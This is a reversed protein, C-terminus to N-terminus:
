ESLGVAELAQEPNAYIVWRVIRGARLEFLHGVRIEAPVGSAWGIASIRVKFAVRDASAAHELLEWRNDKLAEHVERLAQRLGEYGRFTGATGALDALQQMEVGPDFITALAEDSLADARVGSNLGEYMRRVIEVNERSM